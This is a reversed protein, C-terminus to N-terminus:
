TWSWKNIVNSNRSLTFNSICNMEGALNVRFCHLSPWAHRTCFLIGSPTLSRLLVWPLSCVSCHM